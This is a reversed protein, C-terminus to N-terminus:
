RGVVLLRLAFIAAAMLLPGFLYLWFERISRMWVSKRYNELGENTEAHTVRYSVYCDEVEEIDFATSCPGAYLEETNNQQTDDVEVKNQKEVKRTESSATSNRPRKQPKQTTIFARVRLAHSNMAMRPARVPGSTTLISRDASTRPVRKPPSIPPAGLTAM